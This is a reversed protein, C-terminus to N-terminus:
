AAFYTASVLLTSVIVIGFIWIARRAFTVRDGAGLNESTVLPLGSPPAAATEETPTGMVATDADALRSVDITKLDAVCDSIAPYRENPDKKLTKRIIQELGSPRESDASGPFPPPEKTIINSLTEVVSSGEFPTRGVA